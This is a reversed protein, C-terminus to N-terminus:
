RSYEGMEKYRGSSDEIAAWVINIKKCYKFFYGTDDWIVKYEGPNKKMLYCYLKFKKVRYKYDACNKNKNFLDIFKM